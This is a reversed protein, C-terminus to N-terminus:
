EFIKAQFEEVLKSTLETHKQSFTEIIKKLREFDLDDISKISFLLSFNKEVGISLDVLTLNEELLKRYYPLINNKPLFTLPSIIKIFFKGDEKLLYLYIPTIGIKFFWGLMNKDSTEIKAEEHSTGVTSLIEEIITLIDEIQNDKEDGFIKKVIHLIDM